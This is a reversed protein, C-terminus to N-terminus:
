CACRTDQWSECDYTDTRATHIAKPATQPVQVGNVGTLAPQVIREMRTRAAPGETRESRAEREVECQHQETTRKRKEVVRKTGEDALRQFVAKRKRAQRDAVRSTHTVRMYTTVARIRWFAQKAAESTPFRPFVVKTSDAQSTPGQSSSGAHPRPISLRHHAPWRVVCARANMAGGGRGGSRETEERWARLVLMLWGRGEGRAKLWSTGAVAKNRWGQLHVQADLAIQWIVHTMRKKCALRAKVDKGVYDPLAGCLVRQVAEWQEQKM